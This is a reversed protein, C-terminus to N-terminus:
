EDGTQMEAILSELESANLQELKVSECASMKGSKDGILLTDLRDGAV